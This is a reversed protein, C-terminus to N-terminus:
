QLKNNKLDSNPSHVHKKERKSLPVRVTTNEKRPLPVSSMPTSFSSAIFLYFPSVHKRVPAIKWAGKHSPFL